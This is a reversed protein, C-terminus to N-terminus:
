SVINDKLFISNGYYRWYCSLHNVNGTSICSEMYDQLEGFKVVSVGHAGAGGRAERLKGVESFSEAKTDFEFISDHYSAVNWGGVFIFILTLEMFYILEKGIFYVKNYVNVGALGGLALPLEATLERWSQDGKVLLEASSQRIQSGTASSM